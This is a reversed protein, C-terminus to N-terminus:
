SNIKGIACSVFSKAKTTNQEIFSLNETTLPYGLSKLNSKLEEIDENSIDLTIERPNKSLDVEIDGFRDFLKTKLTSACGGCKVNLIKFTQKM